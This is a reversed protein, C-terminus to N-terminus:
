PPRWKPIQSSFPVKAAAATTHPDIRTALLPTFHVRGHSHGGGLAVSGGDDGFGCRHGGRGLPRPAKAVATSVLVSRRRCNPLRWWPPRGRRWLLRRGLPSSLVRHRNNPAACPSIPNHSQLMHYLTSSAKTAHSVSQRHSKQIHSNQRMILRCFRLTSLNHYM